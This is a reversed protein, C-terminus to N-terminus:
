HNNTIKFNKRATDVQCKRSCLSQSDRKRIYPKECDPNKCLFVREGEYIKLSTDM